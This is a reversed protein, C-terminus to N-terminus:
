GPETGRKDEQRVKLKRLAPCSHGGTPGTCRAHRSNGGGLVQEEDVRMGLPEGGMGGLPWDVCEVGVRLRQSPRFPARYGLWALSKAPITLAGELGQPLWVPSDFRTPIRTPVSPPPWPLSSVVVWSLTQAGSPHAQAKRDGPWDTGKVATGAPALKAKQM